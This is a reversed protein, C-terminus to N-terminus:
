KKPVGQIYSNGFPKGTTISLTLQFKYGIVNNRRKKLDLTTVPYFHPFLSFFLLQKCASPVGMVSIDVLYKGLISFFNTKIADCSM